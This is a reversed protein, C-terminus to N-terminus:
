RGQKLRKIAKGLAKERRKRARYEADDERSALFALERRLKQFSAWRRPTIRGDALAAALACGDEGAHRCDAYRCRAALAEIDAFTDAVGEDAEWLQLERMGPTDLMLAGSPLRFLQRHTTAHRGKSDGARVERTRQIEEGLLANLLTSKGVGSSGLLAATEGPALCAQVAALGVALPASIAHVPTRGAVARAAALRDATEPCLDAKTLLVVPRAGSEGAAALYREIRALSFNGDLGVLLLVTDVNASIVQPELRIGPAKRIFQGRRPLVAHITAASGAHRRLAVWDGVVPLDLKAAAEHLLKGTVVGAVEGAATALLYHTRHHQTVRGPEADAAYPAFAAAWRADWGYEDLTM